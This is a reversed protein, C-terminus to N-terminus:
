FLAVSQLSPPAPANCADLLSYRIESKVVEFRFALPLPYPLSLPPSRYGGKCLPLAELEYWGYRLRRSFLKTAPSSPGNPPRFVGPSPRTTEGRQGALQGFVPAKLRPQSRALDSPLQPNQPIPQSSSALLPMLRHASLTRTLQMQRAHRTAPARNEAAYWRQRTLTLYAHPKKLHISARMRVGVIDYM